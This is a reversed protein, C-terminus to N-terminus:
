LAMSLRSRLWISAARSMPAEHSRMWQRTTMGKAFGPMLEPHVITNMSVAPASAAGCIRPPGLLRHNVWIM